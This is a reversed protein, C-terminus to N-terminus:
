LLLSPDTTIANMQQYALMTGGDLLVGWVLPLCVISRYMISMASPYITTCTKGFSNVSQYRPISPDQSVLFGVIQVVIDLMSLVRSVPSDATIRENGSDDKVKVM